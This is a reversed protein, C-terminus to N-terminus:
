ESIPHSNTTPNPNPNKPDNPNGGKHHQLSVGQPYGLYKPSPPHIGM